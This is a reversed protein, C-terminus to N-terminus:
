PTPSDTDPLTHTVGDWRGTNGRADPAITFAAWAATGVFFLALSLLIYAYTPM